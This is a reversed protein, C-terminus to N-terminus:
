SATAKKAAKKPQQTEFQIGCGKRSSATQIAQMEGKLRSVEAAQAGDGKVLFIAPWFIILGATM